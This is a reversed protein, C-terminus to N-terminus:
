IVSLYIKFGPFYSTYAENSKQRLSQANELTEITCTSTLNSTNIYQPYEAHILVCAYETHTHTHIDIHLVEPCQRYTM